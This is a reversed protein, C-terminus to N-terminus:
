KQLAFQNQLHFSSEAQPLNSKSEQRKGKAWSGFCDFAKAKKFNAM